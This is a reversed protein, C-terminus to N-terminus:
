AQPTPPAPPTPESSLPAADSVVPAPSDPTSPAVGAVPPAEDSGTSPAPPTAATATSTPSTASAAAPTAEPASSSPSSPTPDPTSVPPTPAKGGGIPPISVAPHDVVKLLLSEVDSVRGDLDAAKTATSELGQTTALLRTTLEAITNQNAVVVEQLHTVEDAVTKQFDAQANRIAEEANGLNMVNSFVAAIAELRDHLKGM